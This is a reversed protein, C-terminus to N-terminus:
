IPNVPGNGYFSKLIGEVIIKLSNESNNKLEVDFSYSNGSGQFSVLKVQNILGYFSTGMESKIYNNFNIPMLSTDSNIYGYVPSSITQSHKFTSLSNASKIQQMLSIPNGLYLKNDKLLIATESDIEIINEQSLDFNNEKAIAILADINKIGLVFLFKANVANKENDYNDYFDYFDDESVDNFFDDDESSFSSFLDENLEDELAVEFDILSMSFEGNFLGKVDNFSLNSPSLIANIEQIIPEYQTLFDSHNIFEDMALNAQLFSILRGNDSLYNMYQPDLPQNKLFTLGNINTSFVTSAFSINGANFNGSILLQDNAVSSLNIGALSATMKAYNQLLILANFDDKRNFYDDINDIPSVKDIRLNLLRSVIAKTNENSQSLPNKLVGILNDNDWGLVIGNNTTLFNFDDVEKKGGILFKLNKGLKKANVVDAMFFLYDFNGKKDSVVVAHINGELKLGLNEAKLTNQVYASMVKYEDPLSSSNILDSKDLVTLLDVSSILAVDDKIAHVVNAKWTHDIPKDCSCLILLLFFISIISSYIKM